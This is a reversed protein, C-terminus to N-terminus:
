HALRQLAQALAGESVTLHAFPQFATRIKNFPLGHVYQLLLAHTLGQPGLRSHPIEEPAPPATVVQRCRRCYYRHHAFRTVEGRAPILDEQLHTTVAVSPGLPGHCSPCRTLRQEVIRDISTPTARTM